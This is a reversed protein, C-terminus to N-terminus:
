LWFRKHHHKFLSPVLLDGGLTFSIAGHEINTLVTAGIENYRTIVEAKPHGYQNKYGVPILAYKPNVQNIFEWSSSTKSGHHPVLLIDVPLRVTHHSILEQESNTEIDGTLLIKHKGSEILLVCSNDNRKKSNTAKQPHLIEFNVGDWQWQQGAVCLLPKHEPLDNLDSTLLTNVPIQKLISQAGGIHDNDGHSIILTDIEKIGKTDLFPIVVKAGLDFDLSLKAGTDYVLTHYQTRVVTALGQGVDLLTFEAQGYPVHTIKIFLMPLFNLIGWWRSAIGIPVFLWVAGIFALLIILWIQAEPVQWKYVPFKSLQLLIPWLCSFLRESFNLIYSALSPFLPMILLGIISSPIVLISVWPIAIANALPAVISSQAFFLVNIPFLAVMLVIYPKSWRLVYDFKSDVRSRGVNVFILFGVALFSFWFALSLVAFPDWIIILALALFYGHRAALNRKFIYSALFVSLMIFARQTAVGFGALLAYSLTVIVAGHAAVVPSAYRLIGRPVIRWLKHIFAFSISALIGMHLGSIALLHSTGTQQMIKFQEHSIKHKTGLIFSIIVGAFARDKLIQQACGLLYQRMYNIPSNYVNNKILKNQIDVVVYGLGVIRQQWYFKQVDFSGPNAYNRPPKLKVKLVWQEGPRLRQPPNQWSLRVKAPMKWVIENNLVKDIVFDFSAKNNAAIEVLSTITGAVIIKKTELDCPISHKLHNHINFVMWCFGACSILMILIFRSPKCIAITLLFPIALCPYILDPTNPMALTTTIGGLFAITCINFPLIKTFQFM